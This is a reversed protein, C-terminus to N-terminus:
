DFANPTSSPGLSNPESKRSSRTESPAYLPNLWNSPFGMLWSLFEPNVVGLFANKGHSQMGSRRSATPTPWIRLSVATELNRNKDHVRSPGVRGTMRVRPTPWTTLETDPTRLALARLLCFRRGSPTAQHKWTLRFLTSGTTAMRARLRNELSSQLDASMSSITGHRGCIANTKLLGDKAPTPFPSVPAAEPGSRATTLGAPSGPPTAGGESAPSSTANPTDAFITRDSM